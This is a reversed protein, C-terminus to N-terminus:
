EKRIRKVKWWEMRKRGFGKLRGGSRRQREGLEKQEKPRRHEDLGCIGIKTAVNMEEM